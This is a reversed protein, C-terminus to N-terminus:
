NNPFSVVKKCTMHDQSSILSSCVSFNASRSRTLLHGWFRRAHVSSSCVATLFNRTGKGGLNWGTVIKMTNRDILCRVIRVHCRVSCGEQYRFLRRVHCRFQCRAHAIFHCRIVNSIVYSMSYSMQCSMHFSAIMIHFSMKRSRQFTMKRSMYFSMQCTM